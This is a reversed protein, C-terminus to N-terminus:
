NFLGTQYALLGELHCLVYGDQNFLSRFLKPKIQAQLLSPWLSRDTTEGIGM